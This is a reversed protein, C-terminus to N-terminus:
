NKGKEKKKYSNQFHCQNQRLNVCYEESKNTLIPVIKASEVHDINSNEMSSCWSCSTSIIRVTQWSWNELFFDLIDLDKSSKFIRVESNTFVTFNLITTVDDAGRSLCSHQLRACDTLFSRFTQFDSLAVMRFM